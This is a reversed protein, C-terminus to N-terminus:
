KPNGDIKTARVFAISATNIIEERPPAVETGRDDDRGARPVGTTIAPHRATVLPPDVSIVECSFEAIEGGNKGPRWMEFRYTKGIEFM